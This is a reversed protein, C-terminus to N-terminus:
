GLYILQADEVPTLELVSALASPEPREYLSLFASALDGNDQSPPGLEVRRINVGHNGLVSGISGLVGPKDNHRTILLAGAPALDIRMGNVRVLRPEDGFVTGAISHREGGEGEARVELLSQYPAAEDERGELLELGRDRALMPANVLNVGLDVSQRLAAAMLTLKLFGSDLENVKGRLTLSLRRLPTRTRQALFSGMREMLLTYPALARRADAPLNPANIANHLEDDLFFAATQDAIQEAVNRQAEASSAGLHPTILVDDRNLLPHDPSPPEEALVDLAAGALHGSDLLDALAAEDVLGGRAANVVRAGQKMAALRERSLIGRTKDTLPVHLTVFDARSVLEDLSLLEVGPLPSPGSLFPDHAVVKMQLGLGRSAVVRGIRGLGIVGLTKGTLEAGMLGKKSWNEERVRRDAHAVHRALSFMLAVAHEGTTVTNGTPTNMVAVGLSTAAQTDVNDVGVGARGVLELADAAILVRETIKTASRVLLAHVGPVAAVLEDESLGTRVEPELGRARLRELAVPHLEDCILIRIESPPRPAM